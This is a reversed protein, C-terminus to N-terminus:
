NRYLETYFHFLQQSEIGRQMGYMLHFVFKINWDTKYYWVKSRFVKYYYVNIQLYKSLKIEIMAMRQTNECIPFYKHFFDVVLSFVNSNKNRMYFQFPFPKLNYYTSNWKDGIFFILQLESIWLVLEVTRNFLFRNPVSFSNSWLFTLTPWRQQQKSRNFQM